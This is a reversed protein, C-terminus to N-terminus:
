ISQHLKKLMGVIHSYRERWALYDQHNSIYGLDNAYCLWTRMEGASGVAISVFRKFEPKSFSQKEFGEALNACISKSARRMQSGLDYQEIKPFTLTLTHMELSMGYAEQFVRLDEVSSAFDSKVPSEM